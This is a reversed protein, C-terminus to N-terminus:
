CVRDRVALGMDQEHVGRIVIRADAVDHIFQTWERVPFAQPTPFTVMVM